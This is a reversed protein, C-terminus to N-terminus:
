AALDPVRMAITLWFSVFTRLAAIPAAAVSPRLEVFTSTQKLVDVDLWVAQEEDVSLQGCDVRTIPQRAITFACMVYAGIVGTILRMQGDSDSVEVLMVLM